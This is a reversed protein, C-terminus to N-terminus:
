PVSGICIGTNGDQDSRMQPNMICMVKFNKKQGGVEDWRVVQIDMGIVARATMGNRDKLILDYGPIKEHHTVSGIGELDTRLVSLLSRSDDASYRKGMPILWDNGFMLSFPGKKKKDFLAKIMGLVENRTDDPVWGGTPATLTYTARDPFTGYGYMYAGGYEFPTVLGLTADEVADAVHYAAMELNILDLPSGGRASVAIDRLSFFFDKHTIPMPTSISDYEPQDAEAQRLGDMSRTAPTIDGRRQQTLLITGLGDTLTLSASARLDNWASLQTRAIDIVTADFLEWADRTMTTNNAVVVDKRIPTKGDTHMKKTKLSVVTRGDRKRRYPRLAGADMNCALLTEFLDGGMTMQAPAGQRRM